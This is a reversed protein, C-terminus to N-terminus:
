CVRHSHVSGPDSSCAMQDREVLATDGKICLYQVNLTSLLTVKRMKRKERQLTWFAYLHLQPRSLTWNVSMLTNDTTQRHCWGEPKLSGHDAIHVPAAQQSFTIHILVDLDSTRTWGRCVTATTRTDRPRVRILSCNCHHPHQVGSHHLWKLNNQHKPLFTGTYRGKYTNQVSQALVHQHIVWSAQPVQSEGPFLRLFNSPFFVNTQETLKTIM